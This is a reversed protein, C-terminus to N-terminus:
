RSRSHRRLRCTRWRRGLHRGRRAQLCRIQASSDGSDLRALASAAAWHVEPYESDRAKRLAVVVEPRAVRMHGLALAAEYQFLPTSDTVLEVLTQIAEPSSVGVIGLARVAAGSLPQKRSPAPVDNSLSRQHRIAKVLLPALDAPAGRASCLVECGAEVRSGGHDDLLAQEIMAGVEASVSPDTPGVHALAMLADCSRMEAYYGGREKDRHRAVDLLFEIAAPRYSKWQALTAAVAIGVSAQVEVRKDRYPEEDAAELLQQRSLTPELWDVRLSEVLQRRAREDLSALEVAAEIRSQISAATEAAHVDKSVIGQLIARKEEVDAAHDIILSLAVRWVVNEDEEFLSDRFQDHCFERLTGQQGPFRTPDIGVLAAAIAARTEDVRFGPFFDELMSSLHPSLLHPLAARAEPGHEALTLAMCCINDAMVRSMLYDAADVNEVENDELDDHENVTGTTPRRARWAVLASFRGVVEPIAVAGDSGVTRLALLYQVPWSSVANAALDSRLRDLDERPEFLQACSYHRCWPHANLSSMAITALAVNRVDQDSDRLAQNIMKQASQQFDRHVIGTLAAGVARVEVSPDSLARRSVALVVIPDRHRCAMILGVCRGIAGRASKLRTVTANVGAPDVESLVSALGQSALAIYRLLELRSNGSRVELYDVHFSLRDDTPEAFESLCAIAIECASDGGNELSDVLVGTLIAVTERSALVPKSHIHYLIGILLRSAFTLREGEAKNALMNVLYDRQPTALTGAQDAFSGNLFEQPLEDYAREIGEIGFVSEPDWDLPSLGTQVSTRADMGRPAARERERPAACETPVCVREFEERGFISEFDRPSSGTQVSTRADVRRPAAGDRRVESSTTTGETPGDGGDGIWAALVVVACQLVM